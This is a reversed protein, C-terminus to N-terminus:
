FVEDFEPKFDELEKYPLDFFRTYKGEFGLRVTGTEGNRQKGVIVEATGITRMGDDYTDYGCKNRNHILLIVDSDNEIGGSERLDAVMPMKGERKDVDRNLQALSVIPTAFERALKKLGRSIRSIEQERSRTSREEILQLYDIFICGVYHTAIMSSINEKLKELNLGPLDDIYIPLQSLASFGDTMKVNFFDNDMRMLSQMPIDAIGSVARLAMSVSSMELTFIGVPIGTKSINLASSLMFASKGMSPRAAITILDGKGYGYVISNLTSFGTSIHTIEGNLISLREKLAEQAIESIHKYTM